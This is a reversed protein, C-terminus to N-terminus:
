EPGHNRQGEDKKAIQLEAQRDREAFRRNGASRRLKVM